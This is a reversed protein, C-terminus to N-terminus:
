SPILSAFCVGGRTRQQPLRHTFTAGLAHRAADLTNQDVRTATWFVGGKWSWSYASRAVNREYGTSIGAQVCPRRDQTTGRRVSSAISQM